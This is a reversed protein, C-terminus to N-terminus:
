VSSRSLSGKRYAQVARLAVAETSRGSHIAGVVAAGFPLARAALRRLAVGGVLRGGNLTAVLGPQTLRPVRLLDLIERARAEATPDVGYAAAVTLVLSAQTRALVAAAAVAGTAGGLLAGAGHRRATRVHGTVALRALGHATADPYRRRTQAAWDRANPGLRRVAERALHEAAYGPDAFLRAWLPAGLERPELRAAAIPPELDALTALDALDADLQDLLVDDIPVDDIPVDDLVPDRVPEPKAREARAQEAQVARKATAAAKRAQATPSPKPAPRNAKKATAKVKEM